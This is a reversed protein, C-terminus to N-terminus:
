WGNPLRFHRPFRERFDNISCFSGNLDFSIDDMSRLQTIPYIEIGFAGDVIKLSKLDFGMALANAADAAVVDEAWSLYGLHVPHPKLPGQGEGAIIGDTLVFHKREVSRSMTGDVKGHAIIRALDLAMRWATDNGSWSGAFVGGCVRYFKLIAKLVIRQLNTFITLPQDYLYDHYDSLLCLWASNRPFEDGHQSPSGKRHHALCDKHAVIGVCGKLGATMGVKEHTKLKPVSIILDSEIVKKNILYVHLGKHHCAEIRSSPYQSIRYISKEQDQGEMMSHSGLDFKIIDESENDNKRPVCWGLSTQDQIHMRLDCLEICGEGYKRSYDMALADLGIDAVIRDWCGGQLPANGIRIKVKGQYVELIADLLPRLVNANTVKAEFAKRTENDRRHQVFNCLVFVRPCGGSVVNGRLSQKVRSFFSVTNEALDDYTLRDDKMAYVTKDNDM